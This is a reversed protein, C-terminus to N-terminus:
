SQLQLTEGCQQTLGTKGTPPHKNEKRYKRNKQLDEKM